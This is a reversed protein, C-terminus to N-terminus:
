FTWTWPNLEGYLSSELLLKDQVNLFPFENYSKRLHWMWLGLDNWKKTIIMICISMSYYNYWKIKKRKFITEEDKIEQHKIKM